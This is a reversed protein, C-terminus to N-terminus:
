GINFFKALATLSATIFLVFTTTIGKQTTEIKSIRGLHDDLKLDLTELKGHIRDFDRRYDDRNM